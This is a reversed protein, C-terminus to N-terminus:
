NKHKIVKGCHWQDEADLIRIYYIAASLHSAYITIRDANIGYMSKVLKGTGDYMQFAQMQFDSSVTFQYRYPNPYITFGEPEEPVLQGDIFVQTYSTDIVFTTDVITTYITDYVLVETTDHVTEYSWITDYVLVETTDIFPVTDKELLFSLLRTKSCGNSSSAELMINQQINYELPINAPNGSITVSQGLSNQYTWGFTEYLDSNTLNVNVSPDPLIDSTVDLAYENDVTFTTDLFSSCKELMLHYTGNSVQVAGFMQLEATFSTGIAANELEVFSFWDFEQGLGIVAGSECLPTITYNNQVIPESIDPTVFYSEDGCFGVLHLEYSGNQLDLETPLNGTNYFTTDNTQQDILEFTQILDLDYFLNFVAGGGCEYDETAWNLDLEEEALPTLVTQTSYSCSNINVVSLNMVDTDYVTVSSANSSSTTNGLWEVSWTPDYNTILALASDCYATVEVQPDPLPNFTPEIYIEYWCYVGPSEERYGYLRIYILEEIMYDELVIIEDGYDYWGNQVKIDWGWYRDTSINYDHISFTKGSEDNCRSPFDYEETQSQELYVRAFVIEDGIQFKIYYDRYDDMQFSSVNNAVVIWSPMNWEYISVEDFKDFDPINLIPDENYCVEYNLMTQSWIPEILNLEFQDTYGNSYAITYLGNQKLKYIGTNVEEVDPGSVTVTEGSLIGCGTNLWYYGIAEVTEGSFSTPNLKNSQSLNEYVKISHVTISSDSDAAFSFQFLIENITEAVVFDGTLTQMGSSSLSQFGLYTGEIDTIFLADNSNDPHREVELCYSYQKGPQINELMDVKLTNGGWVSFESYLRVAAHGYVKGWVIKSFKANPYETNVIQNQFEPYATIVDGPRLNGGGKTSKTNAEPLTTPLFEKQPKGSQDPKWVFIEGDNHQIGQGYKSEAETKLKQALSVSSVGFSLLTLLIYFLQKM